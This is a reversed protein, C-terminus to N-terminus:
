VRITPSFVGDLDLWIRAAPVPNQKSGLYAYGESTGPAQALVKTGDALYTYNVTDDEDEDNIITAPLNLHNWSLDLGRRGDHMMNGNADYQYTANNLQMLKNGEYTYALNDQPAAINTGFRKLTLINGNRDFSLDRETYKNTQSAGDYCRDVFRGVRDVYYSM